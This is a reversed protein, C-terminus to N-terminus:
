INKLQFSLRYTYFFAIGVIAYTHDAFLYDDPSERKCLMIFVSADTTPVHLAARDFFKFDAGGLNESM